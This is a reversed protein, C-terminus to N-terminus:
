NLAVATQPLGWGIMEILGENLLRMEELRLPHHGLLLAQVYLMGVVRKLVSQDSLHALRGVLPNRWNLHLEADAVGIPLPTELDGLVDSWLGKVQEKTRRLDRMFTGGRPLYLAVLESPAFSSLRAECQFSLLVENAVRRLDATQALVDAGVEGLEGAVTDADLRELPVDPHLRAYGQLVAEDYAYIAHIIAQGSAAAIPAVQRFLSRDSVFRVARSREQIEPLTMTGLSTEFPLWPAFLKLFEDDEGALAKISLYHLDIIRRLANPDREALGILYSRLGDGIQARAELLAADEYFANRAANPRLGDANLVCKVFFAWSPVLNDCADSLLMNKLYARHRGRAELGPTFPLVVAVGQVDGTESRLEFADLGEVELTRRGFDLMAQRRANHSSFERRWPAGEANVVINEVVRGDELRRVEVPYPLLAGFHACWAVVNEFEFFEERGAKAQLQVRSGTELRENVIGIAYEGSSQGLWQLSEANESRASRTLVEIGESVVFCALLGIGFQGIFEQRGRKSSRAITSLFEHIEPQTLGVGNDFFTITPVDDVRSVELQLAGIHDPELLARARIADVGNQMLERLFVQPGEYLHESLLDIMGRLDVQFNQAM